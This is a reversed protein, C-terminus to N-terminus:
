EFLDEYNPDTIFKPEPEVVFMLDSDYIEAIWPGKTSHGWGSYNSYSATVRNGTVKTVVGVGYNEVTERDHKDHIKVLDGVKFLSM